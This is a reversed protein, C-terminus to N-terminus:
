RVEPRVDRTRHVLEKLNLGIQSKHLEASEYVFIKADLSADLHRAQIGRKQLAAVTQRVRSWRQEWREFGMDARLGLSHFYLSLEGSDSIVAEDLLSLSLGVGAEESERAQALWFAVKPPLKSLSSKTSSKRLLPLAQARQLIQIKEARSDLVWLKGEDFSLLVGSRLEPELTVRDPWVRKIRVSRVSSSRMAEKELESLKLAFMSRGRYDLLRTELEARLLSDSTEVNIERVRFLAQRSYLWGALTALFAGMLFLLSLKKLTRL